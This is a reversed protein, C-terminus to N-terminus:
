YTVVAGNELSVVGRDYKWEQRSSTSEAVIHSPEGWALRAFAAPMGIALRRELAARTWALCTEPRVGASEADQVATLMSDFFAIRSREFRDRECASAGCQAMETRRVAAQELIDRRLMLVIEPYGRQSDLVRQAEADEQRRRDQAAAAAEPTDLRYRSRIDPPLLGADIRGGGDPHSVKLGDALVERVVVNRLVRGDTLKLERLVDPRATAAPAAAAAATPSGAAPQQACVSQAPVAVALLVTVCPLAITAVLRFTQCTRPQIKM